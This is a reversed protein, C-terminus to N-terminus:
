LASEQSQNNQDRCRRGKRCANDNLVLVLVAFCHFLGPRTVHDLQGVAGPVIEFDQEPALATRIGGDGQGGLLFALDEQRPLGVQAQGALVQDNRAQHEAVAIGGGALDDGEAAVLVVQSVVRTDGLHHDIGVVVRFAALGVVPYHEVAPVVAEIVVVQGAFAVVAHRHRHPEIGLGALLVVVPDVVVVEAVPRVQARVAALRQADPGAM